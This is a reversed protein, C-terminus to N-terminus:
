YNKIYNLMVGAIRKMETYGWHNGDYDFSNNTPIATFDPRNTALLNIKDNIAIYNANTLMINTAYIHMANSYRIKLRDFMANVSNYWVTPDTLAIADNIGHTYMFFIKTPKNNIASIASLAGDIRTLMTTYYPSTAGWQSIKSGGQGAKVLFTTNYDFLGLDIENALELEWGHWGNNQSFTDHGLLNNGGTALIGINCNYFGDNTLNKWLNLNREGLESPLANSNFAVGGSNSEALFVILTNYLNSEIGSGITLFNIISSM